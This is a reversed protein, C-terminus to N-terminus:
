RHESINQEKALNKEPPVIHQELYASEFEHNKEM